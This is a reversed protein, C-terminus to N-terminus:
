HNTARKHVQRLAPLQPTGSLGPPTRYNRGALAPSAAPDAFPDVGDLRITPLSIFALEDAQEPTSTEAGKVL